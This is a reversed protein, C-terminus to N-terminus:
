ARNRYRAVPAAPTLLLSGSAKPAVPARIERLLYTRPKDPQSCCVVLESALSPKTFACARNVSGGAQPQYGLHETVPRLTLWTLGLKHSRFSRSWWARKVEAEKRLRGTFRIRPIRLSVVPEFVTVSRHLQRVPEKCQLDQM